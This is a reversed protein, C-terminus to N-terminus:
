MDVARQMNMNMERVKVAFKRYDLEEEFPVQIGDSIIVPICGLMLVDFMSFWATLKWALCVSACRGSWTAFGLPCLCFLSELVESHFRPSHGQSCM